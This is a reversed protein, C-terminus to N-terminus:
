NPANAYMERAKELADKMMKRLQKEREKPDPRNDTELPWFDEIASM